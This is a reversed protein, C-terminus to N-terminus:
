KEILLYHRKETRIIRHTLSPDVEDFVKEGKYFLLLSGPKTYPASLKLLLETDTVARSTILDFTAPPLEEVRCSKM